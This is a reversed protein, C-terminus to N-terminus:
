KTVEELTAEYTKGNTGLSTLKGEEAEEKEDLMERVWRDAEQEEIGIALLTDKMVGVFIAFRRALKDRRNDPKINEETAEMWGPVRQLNKLLQAVTMQTDNQDKM